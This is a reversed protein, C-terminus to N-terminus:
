DVRTDNYCAISEATYTPGGNKAIDEDTMPTSGSTCIHACGGGILPAGGRAECAIQCRDSVNCRKALARLECKRAPHLERADVWSTDCEPKYSVGPSVATCGVLLLVLLLILQRTMPVTGRLAMAFFGSVVLGSVRTCGNRRGFM